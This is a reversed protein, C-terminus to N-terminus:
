IITIHPYKKRLDEKETSTLSRLDLYGSIKEPLKVKPDLTTLSSLYLSGCEKPLKVKPDLTTLSRLYLSGSFDIGTKLAWNFFSTFDPFRNKFATEYEVKDVRDDEALRLEINGNPLYHGERWVKPDLKFKKETNGHSNLDWVKIEGTSPNHLFSAFSCM